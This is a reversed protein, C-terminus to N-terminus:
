DIIMNCPSMYTTMGLPIYWFSWSSVSILTMGIKLDKLSHVLPMGDGHKLRYLLRIGREVTSGYRIMTSAFGDAPRINFSPNSLRVDSGPRRTAARFLSLIHPDDSHFIVIVTTPRLLSTHHGTHIYPAQTFPHLPGRTPTRSREKYNSLHNKSTPGAKPFCKM